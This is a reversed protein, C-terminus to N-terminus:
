WRAACAKRRRLTPFFHKLNENRRERREVRRRGTRKVYHPKEQEEEREKKDFTRMANGLNIKGACLHLREGM